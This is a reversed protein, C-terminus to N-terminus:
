WQRGPMEFSVLPIEFWNPPAWIPRLVRHPHNVDFMQDPLIRRVAHEGIVNTTGWFAESPTMRGRQVWYLANQGCCVHGCGTQTHFVGQPFLRLVDVAQDLSLWPHIHLFVVISFSTKDYGISVWPFSLRMYRLSGGFSSNDFICTRVRPAEQKLNLTELWRVAPVRVDYTM